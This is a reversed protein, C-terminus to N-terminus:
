FRAQLLMNFGLAHPKEFSPQAVGFVDDRFTTRNRDYTYYLEGIAAVSESLDWRFTGKASIIPTADCIEQGDCSTPLISLSNVDRVVVTRTGTLSPPPNNGGFLPDPSRFSAPQQVGVIFGPTFHLGPFNYDAGAALFMEPKLETGEPFDSFPPLGPVEFQIFSLSRYLGLVHFRWPHTLRHNPALTAANLLAEIEERTVPRTTFRKIFRRSAIAETPRM